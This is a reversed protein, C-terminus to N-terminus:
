KEPARYVTALWPQEARPVGPPRYYHDIETFGAATAYGRWTAHDLFAGYRGRRWGEENNGHPNSAFFIGGPKLAARLEALM